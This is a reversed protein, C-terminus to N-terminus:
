LLEKIRAKIRDITLWGARSAAPLQRELYQVEEELKLVTQAIKAIGLQRLREEHASFALEATEEEWAKQGTSM